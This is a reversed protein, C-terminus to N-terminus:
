GEQPGNKLASNLGLWSKAPAEDNSDVEVDRKANSMQEEGTTHCEHARESRDSEDRVSDEQLTVRDIRADREPGAADGSSTSAGDGTMAHAEDAKKGDKYEGDFWAQLGEESPKFHCWVEGSVHYEVGEGDRVNRKLKRQLSAAIRTRYANDVKLKAAIWQDDPRHEDPLIELVSTRLIEENTLCRDIIAKGCGTPPAVLQM